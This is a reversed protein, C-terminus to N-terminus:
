SITEGVYPDWGAPDTMFSPIRGLNYLLLNVNRYRRKRNSGATNSRSDVM